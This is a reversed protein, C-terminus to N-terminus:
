AGDIKNKDFVKSKWPSSEIFNELNNLFIRCEEEGDLILRPKKKHDLEKIMMNATRAILVLTPFFTRAVQGQLQIIEDSTEIRGLISNNMASGLKTLNDIWDVPKEM